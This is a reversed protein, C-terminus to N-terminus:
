VKLTPVNGTDFRFSVRRFDKHVSRLRFLVIKTIAIAKM